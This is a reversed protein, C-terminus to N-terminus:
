SLCNQISQAFREPALIDTSLFLSPEILELEMLLLNEGSMVGDVRAYTVRHHLTNIVKGAQKIIGESPIAVSYTGGFDNQVRFDNAKPKKVVAHSFEGEFFILSWEGMTQVEEIFEQVLLDHSSVLEAFRAQDPRMADMLFTQYATAAVCPKIVVKKAKLEEEMLSVIDANSGKDVWITKAMRVGTAQLAKLYSKHMNWKVTPSDNIVKVRHQELAEM